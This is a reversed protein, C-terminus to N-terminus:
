SKKRRKGQEILTESEEKELGELEDLEEKSQLIAWRRLCQMSSRNFPKLSESTAVQQWHKDGYKEIALRLCEDEEETWRSSNLNPNLTHDWRMACQKGTRGPLYKAIYSEWRFWKAKGTRVQHFM